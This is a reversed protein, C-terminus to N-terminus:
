PRCIGDDCPTCLVNQFDRLNAPTLSRLSGNPGIQHFTYGLNSLLDLIDTPSYGARAASFDQIEVIISPKFRQLCEKAGRLCALEAGEIDIKILDVRQISPRAQLWADLTTMQIRQLPTAGEGGYLSGLGNNEDSSEQGCSTYIIRNDEIADGLAFYEVDIQKFQNMQVHRALQQAIATVPEFAYVKGQDGVRKASLLSIEGINAGVDLVTMGPKLLTNLLHAINENYYGMWFIRRQMHEALQLDVTLDGDFNTVTVTGRLHRFVRRLISKPAKTRTASSLLFGLKRFLLLLAGQRSTTM